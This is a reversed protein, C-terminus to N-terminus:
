EEKREFSHCPDDYPPNTRVPVESIEDCAWFEDEKDEDIICNHVCEYCSRPNRIEDKFKTM